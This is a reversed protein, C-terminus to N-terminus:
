LEHGLQRLATLNDWEVWAEVIQGDRLRYIALYDASMTRGSAPYPGMKGKQRGTFHHRAAVKGAEAVLDELKEDADPFTEFESRLFEILAGRSAVEPKAGAYSHRVFNAAVLTSLKKWDRANVAAVFARVVQKNDAARKLSGKRARHQRARM